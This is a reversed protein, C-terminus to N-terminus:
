VTAGTVDADRGPEATEAEPRSRALYLLVLGLLILIPGLIWDIVPGTKTVLQLGLASNKYKKVLMKVTADTYTLTGQILPVQKGNAVLRQNVNESGKIIAGTNPEIWLTRTDSYLRDATVSATDPQGILSGPVAQQSIVIDNIPQVFRYTLLGDLKQTGAYHAPLAKRVNVDWFPYTQKKTGFPFKWQLGQHAIPSGLTDSTDTMLYDGCCNNSEGTKADISGGEIYANLLGNTQGAVVTSFALRYFAQGSKPRPANPRIEGRIVRTATVKQGTLERIGGDDTSQALLVTLGTGDAVIDLKPDAPIRQIRPYVYTPLAIAMAILAVGLGVCILGAIRRM